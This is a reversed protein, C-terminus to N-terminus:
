AEDEQLLPTQSKLKALIARARGLWHYAGGRDGADLLGAVDQEGDRILAEAEKLLARAEALSYSTPTSDAASGITTM